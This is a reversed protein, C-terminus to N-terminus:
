VSRILPTGGIAAVTGPKSQDPQIATAPGRPMGFGTTALIAPWIASTWAVGLYAWASRVDNISAIGGSDGSSVVAKTRSSYARQFGIMSIEPAVASHHPAMGAVLILGM